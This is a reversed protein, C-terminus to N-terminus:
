STASFPPHTVMDSANVIRRVGRPETDRPGVGAQPHGDDEQDSGGTLCLTEIAPRLMKAKVAQTAQRLAPSPGQWDELHLHAEEEEEARHHHGRCGVNASTPYLCTGKTVPSGCQKPMGRAASYKPTPPPPPRHPSPVFESPMPRLKSASRMSVEFRPETERIPAPVCVLSCRGLALAHLAKERAWIQGISCKQVLWTGDGM